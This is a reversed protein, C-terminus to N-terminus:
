VKGKGATVGERAARALFGAGMPSVIGDFSDRVLVGDRRRRRSYETVLGGDMLLDAQKTLEDAEKVDASDVSVGTLFTTLMGLALPDVGKVFDDYNSYDSM